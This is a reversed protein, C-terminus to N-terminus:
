LYRKDYILETNLKSKIISSVKKCSKMYKDCFKQDEIMFSMCKTKDFYKKYIGMEPFYAYLELKNIVKTILSINLAKNVM